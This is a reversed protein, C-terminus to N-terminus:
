WQRFAFLEGALHDYCTRAFRLPNGEGPFLLMREQLASDLLLHRLATVALGTMAKSAFFGFGVSCCITSPM